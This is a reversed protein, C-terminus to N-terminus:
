NAGAWTQTSDYLKFRLVMHGWSCQVSSVAACTLATRVPFCLLRWIYTGGVYPPVVLEVQLAARDNMGNSISHAPVQTWLFSARDM